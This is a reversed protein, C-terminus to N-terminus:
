NILVPLWRTFVFFLSSANPLKRLWSSSPLLFTVFKFIQCHYSFCHWVSRDSILPVVWPFHFSMKRNFRALWYSYGKHWKNDNGFKRILAFFRNTLCIEIPINWGFYTSWRWLHDRINRDSSVSVSRGMQIGVSIEPIKPM